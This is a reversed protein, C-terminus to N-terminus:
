KEKFRYGVGRVTEIYQAAKGLKKRLGVIQVDVARETVIYNDGRVGDMIEQRTFVWGPHRMLFHLIGYESFTLNLEQGDVWVRRKLPHLVIENFVIEDNASPTASNKRRLVSKIRAILVKPSFPKVIYDDAGIELGKVIEEEGGRATLIIIPIGKTSENTRIFECVDFGSIGPLMVDLLILDPIFKEVIRIAKEGSDVIKTEFGAQELNFAILEAIDPEDEVILIKRLAEM